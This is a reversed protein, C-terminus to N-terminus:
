SRSGLGRAATGKTKGKRAQYELEEAEITAKYSYYFRALMGVVCLVTLSITFVPLIGLARDIGYGIAAFLVPTLGINFGHAVRKGPLDEDLNTPTVARAVQKTASVLRDPRAARVPASGQAEQAKDVLM